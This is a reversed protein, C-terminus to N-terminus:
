IEEKWRDFGSNRLRRDRGGTLKGDKWRDVKRCKVQRDSRGEQGERFSLNGTDMQALHAWNKGRM